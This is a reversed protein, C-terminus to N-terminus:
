IGRFPSLAPGGGTARTVKPSKGSCVDGADIFLRDDATLDSRFLHRGSEPCEVGFVHTGSRVYRVTSGQAMPFEDHDLVLRASATGTNTCHVDVYSGNWTVGAIVAGAITGGVVFVNSMEDRVRIPSPAPRVELGQPSRYATRAGVSPQGESLPESVRLELIGHRAGCVVVPLRRSRSRRHARLAWTWGLVLALFLFAVFLPEPLPLLASALATLIGPVLVFARRAYLPRRLARRQKQACAACLPVEPVADALEGLSAGEALLPTTVTAAPAACVICSNRARLTGLPVSVLWM